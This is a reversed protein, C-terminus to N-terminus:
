KAFYASFFRLLYQEGLNVSRTLGLHFGVHGGVAPFVGHLWPSALVARTPLADDDYFPDDRASLLLTPRRIAPLFAACSSSRWYEAAGRFGHIVATACDDFASFSRSSRVREVEVCGPFQREKALAKPILTRLFHAVYLGGLMRDIRLASREVDFPASVVAAARLTDPAMSGQEGLWKALMNAGASFGAIGLARGPWRRQVERVIFDIDTTEGLHYLRRARNMEGGCSRHEAALVSWGRAACAAALGQIYPSRVSGELGHLLIVLPSGAPGLSIHVRLFDDDPTRWRELAGWWRRRRNLVPGLITQRHGGQLWWPTERHLLALASLVRAKHGEQARGYDLVGHAMPPVSARPSSSRWGGVPVPDRGTVREPGGTGTGKPTAM